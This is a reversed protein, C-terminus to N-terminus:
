EESGSKVQVIFGHDGGRIFRGCTLGQNNIGTFTTSTANPYDYVTAEGSPAFYVGHAHGEVMEGVMAGSDNIGNLMTNSAGPVIIPYTLTGDADRRFGAQFTASATYWGVCQDLNNIDHAEGYSSRPVQFLTTTGGINVFSSDPGSTYGCFDGTDNLGLVTTSHTGATLDTFLGGSLLFSGSSYFGCFMKRNNMGTIETFKVPDSPDIIPGSFHGNSLRVFGHVSGSDSNYIGAVDGHDDIGSASTFVAGPYDIVAVIEFTVSAAAITTTLVTVLLLLLFRKMTTMSSYCHDSSAFLLFKMGSM